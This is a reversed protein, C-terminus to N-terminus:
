AVLWLIVFVVAGILSLTGVIPLCGQAAQRQSRAFRLRLGFVAVCVVAGVLM